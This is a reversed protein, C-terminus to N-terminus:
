RLIDTRSVQLRRAADIIGQPVRIVHTSVLNTLHMNHFEESNNERSNSTLGKQTENSSSGRQGLSDGNIMPNRIDLYTCSKERSCAAGKNDDEKELSQSSREDIPLLKLNLFHQRSSSGRPCAAAWHDPQFCRICLCPCEASVYSSINRLLHDLESETVESCDRLNHGSKGCYFCTAPACTAGNESGLPLIHKLADLRRAFVTAMEESRKLAQSSLTPNIKLVSYKPNHGHIDKFGVSCGTNAAFLLLEKVLFEGSSQNSSYREESCKEKMAFDPKGAECFASVPKSPDLNLPSSGTKSSLRTIWLSGFLNSKNPMGNVTRGECAMEPNENSLKTRLHMGGSESSNVGDKDRHHQPSASAKNEALEAANDVQVPITTSFTYPLGSHVGDDPTSPTIKDISMFNECPVTNRGPSGPTNAKDVQVLGRSGEPKCDDRSARAERLKTNQSYLSHFVTQFGMNRSSSENQKGCIMTEQLFSANKPDAHAGHSLSHDEEDNSKCFGKVMNSIWNMFSSDNKMASMSSPGEDIQKLRKSEFVFNEDYKLRKKGKSLLGASNCSEVSEHSDDEDNSFRGSFNGDSIARSKGRRQNGDIPSNGLPVSHSGRPLREESQGCAEKTTHDHLDNEATCELKELSPFMSSSMNMLKKNEEETALIARETTGDPCPSKLSPNTHPRSQVEAHIDSATTVGALIPKRGPVKNTPDDCSGSFEKNLDGCLSKNVEMDHSSDQNEQVFPNQSLQGAPLVNVLM